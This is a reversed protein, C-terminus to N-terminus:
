FLHQGALFLVILGIFSVIGLIVKESRVNVGLDILLVRIGLMGHFVVAMVLLFQALVKYPYTIHLLILPVLALAALRQTLWAWMGPSTAKWTRLQTLERKGVQEPLSMAM